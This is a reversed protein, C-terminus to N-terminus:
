GHRREPSHPRNLRRRNRHRDFHHDAADLEEQYRAREKRSASVESRAVDLVHRTEQRREEQEPRILGLWMALQRIMSRGEHDAM